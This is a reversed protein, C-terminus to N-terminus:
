AQERLAEDIWIAPLGFAPEQTADGILEVIADVLTSQWGVGQIANGRGIEVGKMLIRYVESKLAMNDRIHLVPPLFVM